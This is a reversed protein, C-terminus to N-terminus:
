SIYSRSWPLPEGELDTVTGTVQREQADAFVFSFLLLLFLLQKKMLM